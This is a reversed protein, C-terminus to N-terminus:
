KGGDLPAWTELNLEDVILGDHFSLLRTRKFDVRDGPKLKVGPVGGAPIVLTLASEDIVRQGAVARRLNVTKDGVILCADARLQRLVADRGAILLGRAPARWCVAEAYHAAATWPWAEPDDLLRVVRSIPDVAADEEAADEKM